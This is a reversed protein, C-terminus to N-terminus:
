GAGQGAGGQGQGARGQGARGMSQRAKQGIRGARRIFTFSLGFLFLNPNPHNPRRLRRPTPSFLFFGQITRSWSHITM